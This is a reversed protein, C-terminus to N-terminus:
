EAGAAVPLEELRGHRNLELIAELPGVSLIHGGEAVDTEMGPFIKLGNELELTDGPDMREGAFAIVRDLDAASWYYGVESVLVLDFRGEPLVEPVKTRRFAVHPQDACRERARALARDALDLALVADCRVALQRTLM